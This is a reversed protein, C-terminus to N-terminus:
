NLTRNPDDIGFFDRYAVASSSIMWPLAVLAPAGCALFAVTTIASFVLGVVWWMVTDRSFILRGAHNLATPFDVGRDLILSMMFSLMISLLPTVALSLLGFFQGNGGIGGIALHIIAFIVFTVLAQLFKGQWAFLDSMVPREGKMTKFAMRYLGLLLPGALIGASCVSLATGLLTALSMLFWNEKYVLWGGTLWDGLRIRSQTAYIPPQYPVQPPQQYYTSQPPYLTAETPSTTPPSIPLTNQPVARRAEPSSLWAAAQEANLDTPMGCNRCFKEDEALQRGCNPCWTAMWTGRYQLLLGVPLRVGVVDSIM